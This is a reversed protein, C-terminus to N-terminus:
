LDCIHVNVATGSSKCQFNSCSLILKYIVYTSMLLQQVRNMTVTQSIRKGETEREETKQKASVCACTCVCVAVCACACLYVCM